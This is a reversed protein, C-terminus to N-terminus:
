YRNGEIIYNNQQLTPIVVERSLWMADTSSGRSTLGIREIRVAVAINHISKDLSKNDVYFVYWGDSKNKGTKHKYPTYLRHPTGTKGGLTEYKSLHNKKTSNYEYQGRMFGKLATANNKTTLEQTAIEENLDYRTNPMVGANAVASVVRAMALPTADMTGQGWAWMWSGNRLSQKDKGNVYKGNSKDRKYTNWLSLAESRTSNVIQNLSNNEKVPEYLLNYTAKGNLTIGAASYINNLEHYLDYENVLNIFYCNSSEVIARKMDVWEHLNGNLPPEVPQGENNYDIVEYLQIDFKTNSGNTTGLKNLGAM